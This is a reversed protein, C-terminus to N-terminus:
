KGLWVILVIGGWFVAVLGLALLCGWNFNV